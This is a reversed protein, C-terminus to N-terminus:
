LLEKALEQLDEQTTAKNVVVRKQVYKGAFWQPIDIKTDWFGLRVLQSALNEPVCFVFPTGQKSAAKLMEVGGKRTAPAFHSVVFVGLEEAIYRCGVLASGEEHDRCFRVGHNSLHAALDSCLYDSRKSMAAEYNDRVPCSEEYDPVDVWAMRSLCDGGEQNEQPVNDHYEDVWDRLSRKRM